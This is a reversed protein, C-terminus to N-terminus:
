ATHAILLGTKTFIIKAPVRYAEATVLVRDIFEPHTEPERLSALLLVQDINAAIIQSEKSLNSSKRIIYNKREEIGTIIGTSGDDSLEYLVHDGVTLPNTTRFGKVRFKGKVFCETINGREDSVKYRNGASKILLGKKM